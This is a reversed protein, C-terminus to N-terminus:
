RVLWKDRSVRLAWPGSGTYVFQLQELEEAVGDYDWPRDAYGECWNFILWGEPTYGKARIARTVSDYVKVDEVQYGQAQLGAILRRTEEAVEILDAETWTNDHNHLMLIQTPSTDLSM